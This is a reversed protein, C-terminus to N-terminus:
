ENTMIRFVQEVSSNAKYNHNSARFTVTYEGEEDFTHTYSSVRNTMNKIAVADGKELRGRPITVHRSILWDENLNGGRVTRAIRLSSFDSLNWVGPSSNTEYPDGIQVKTIDFPIFGMTVATTKSTSVETNALKNEIQLDSITWMPQYLGTNDTTKYLFALTISDGRYENLSINATQVGNQTTPFECASSINLWEHGQIIALDSAANTRSIGAFDRSVFLQLTNDPNNAWNLTSTFSLEATTPKFIDYAFSIFDPEGDFNFTIKTGKPVSITGDSDTTVDSNAEISANFKVPTELPDNCAVLTVALILFLSQITKM